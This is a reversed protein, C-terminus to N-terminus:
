DIKYCLLPIFDEAQLIRKNYPISYLEFLNM